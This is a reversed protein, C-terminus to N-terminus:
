SITMKNEDYGFSTRLEKEGRLEMWSLNSDTSIVGWSFLISEKKRQVHRRFPGVVAPKPFGQHACVEPFILM